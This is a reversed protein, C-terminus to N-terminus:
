NEKKRKIFHHLIVCVSSIIVWGVYLKWANNDPFLWEMKRINDSGLLAATFLAFLFSVFPVYILKILLKM